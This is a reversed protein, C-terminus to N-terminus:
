LRSTLIELEQFEEKTKKAVYDWGKDWDLPRLKKENELWAIQQDTLDAVVQIHHARRFIFKLLPAYFRQKITDINEIKGEYLSIVTAVKTLVSFLIAALAGYSAMIGWASQYNNARHLGRAKLYARFPLLYKDVGTGYGLRYVNVRGIKEHSPLDPRLKATILDFDYGILRKTIEDVATEAPGSLPLYAPAFIIVRTKNDLRMKFDTITRSLGTDFDVAPQWDLLARAKAIDPCRQQPDGLREPIKEYNIFVLNSRSQAIAKIQEALSKITREDPNGLNVPGIGVTEKPAAMLKAFGAILDDIYMFSRSQEGTGHVTIDEGLLAQLAFNSIVRGDNFMMRPGYVNFLRAIRVDVGFQENFDKCLSEAARKGEDYCSRKGIPDVNGFYTEPQPHEHPDGYVESTSAQLMKAGYERALNLMNKVGIVNTELTLVPDYQYQVPSAPCALNYIEDLSDFKIKLPNIINHRILRFDPNNLLHAINEKKGSFFSDVCIVKHGNKLLYECLHSGIFGAGGTVLITKMFLFNPLIGAKLIVYNGTFIM